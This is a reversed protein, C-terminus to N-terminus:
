ERSPPSTIYPHFADALVHDLVGQEEAQDFSTLDHEKKLFELVQADTMAHVYEFAGHPDANGEWVLTTVQGVWNTPCTHEDYYYSLGDGTTLESPTHSTRVIAYLPSADNGPDHRLLVYCHKPADDRVECQTFEVSSEGKVIGKITTGCQHCYWPGFPQPRMEEMCRKVLHDIFFQHANECNPCTFYQRTQIKITPTTM